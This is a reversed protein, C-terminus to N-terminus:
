NGGRSVAPFSPTPRGADHKTRFGSPWTKGWHLRMYIGLVCPAPTFASTSYNSGWGVRLRDEALGEGGAEKGM